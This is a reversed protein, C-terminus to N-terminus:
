VHVHNCSKVLTIFESLNSHTNKSAFKYNKSGGEPNFGYNIAIAEIITSKGIGNEGVLFTIPNKFPIEKIRQLNKIVPLNSLYNDQPIEKTLKLGLIHNTRDM